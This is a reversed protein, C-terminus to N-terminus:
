SVIIAREKKCGNTQLLPEMARSAETAEPMVLMCSADSQYFAQASSGHNALYYCAICPNTSIGIWLVGPYLRKWSFTQQLDYICITRYFNDGGCAIYGLPSHITRLEFCFRKPSQDADILWRTRQERYCFSPLSIWCLSLRICYSLSFSHSGPNFDPDSRAPPGVPEESWDQLDVGFVRHSPAGISAQEHHEM